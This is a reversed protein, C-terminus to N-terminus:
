LKRVGKEEVLLRGGEGEERLLEKVKRRAFRKGL